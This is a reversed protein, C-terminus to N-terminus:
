VTLFENSSRQYLDESEIEVNREEAKKSEESVISTIEEFKQVNRSDALYEKRVKDLEEEAKKYEERAQEVKDSLNVEREKLRSIKNRWLALQNPSLCEGESTLFNYIKEQEKKRVKSYSSLSDVSKEVLQKAQSLIRKKKRLNDMARDQRIKKVELLEGYMGERNM